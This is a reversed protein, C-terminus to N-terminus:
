AYTDYKVMNQSPLPATTTAFSGLILDEEFAVSSADTSHSPNANNNGEILDEHQLYLSIKTCKDMTMVPDEEDFIPPQDYNVVENEKHVQMVDFSLSSSITMNSLSTEECSRDEVESMKQTDKEYLNKHSEECITPDRLENKKVRVNLKPQHFEKECITSDRKKENKVSARLKPQHSEKECPHQQDHSRRLTEHQIKRKAFVCYDEAGILVHPHSSHGRAGKEHQGRHDFHGDHLNKVHQHRVGSNSIPLREDFMRKMAAVLSNEFHHLEARSILPEKGRHRGGCFRPNPGAM